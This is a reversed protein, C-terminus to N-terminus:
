KDKLIINDIVKDSAMGDTNDFNEKVFRYLREMEFDGTRIAELLEELFTKKKM